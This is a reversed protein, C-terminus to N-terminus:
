PPDYGKQCMSQTELFKEVPDTVMGGEVLVVVRAEMSLHPLAVGLGFVGSVESSRAVFSVDDLGGQGRWTWRLVVSETLNKEEM